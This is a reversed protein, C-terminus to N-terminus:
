AAGPRQTARVWAQLAEEIQTPSQTTAKVADRKVKGGAIEVAKYVREMYGAM